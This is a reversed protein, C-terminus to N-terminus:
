QIQQVQFWFTVHKGRDEQLSGEVGVTRDEVDDISICAIHTNRPGSAM